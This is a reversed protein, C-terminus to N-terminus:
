VELYRMFEQVRELIEDDQEGFSAVIDFGNHELMHCVRTTDTANLKVTLRRPGGQGDAPESAVSLVKVDSQEILHVLQALSYDRQEAELALIAGPEQTSLMRAFREFLDRRHVVGLYREPAEASAANHQRAAHVGNAATETVSDAASSGVNTIPEAVPLVSLDHEVMARTADFVHAGPRVSVPRAGLLARVPAEADPAELLQEESVLGVLAGTDDVVPQHAVGHELLTALATEVPDGPALPAPSETLLARVKM